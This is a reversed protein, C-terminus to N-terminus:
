AEARLLAAARLFGCASPAAENSLRTAQDLTKGDAPAGCHPARKTVDRENWAAVRGRSEGNQIGESRCHYRGPQLGGAGAAAPVVQVDGTGEVM